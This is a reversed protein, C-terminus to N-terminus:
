SEHSVVSNVGVATDPPSPIDGNGPGAARRGCGPKGGLGLYDQQWVIYQRHLASFM